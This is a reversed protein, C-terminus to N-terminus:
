DLSRGHPVSALHRKLAPMSPYSRDRCEHCQIKAGKAALKKDYDEHVMAVRRGARLEAAVRRLPVFFDTTFALWHDKRKLRDSVFDQSIVHVHLHTMSPVAHVGTRFRFTPHEIRLEAELAKCRDELAALVAMDGESNPDLSAVSALPWTHQIDPNQNRPMVLYHATAKPYQDAITVTAADFHRVISPDYTEPHEIYPVLAQHWAMKRKIVTSHFRRFTQFRM